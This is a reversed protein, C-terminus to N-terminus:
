GNVLRQKIKEVLDHHHQGFGVVSDYVDKDVVGNKFQSEIRSNVLEQGYLNFFDKTLNFKLMHDFQDVKALSFDVLHGNVRLLPKVSWPWFWVEISTTRTVDVTSEWQSVVEYDSIEQQNVLLRVRNLTPHELGLYFKM